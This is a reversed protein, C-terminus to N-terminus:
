ILNAGASAQSLQLIANERAFCLSAAGLGQALDGNRICLAPSIEMM